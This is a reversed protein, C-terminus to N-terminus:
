AAHVGSVANGQLGVSYFIRGHQPATSAICARRNDCYLAVEVQKLSLYDAKATGYATGTVGNEFDVIKSARKTTM